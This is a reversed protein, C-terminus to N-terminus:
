KKPGQEIKDIADEAAQGVELRAAVNRWQEYWEASPVVVRGAIPYSNSRQEFPSDDRGGTLLWFTRGLAAVERLRPLAARADPGIDGLLRAASVAFRPSLVPLGTPAERLAPDTQVLEALATVAASNKDIAWLVTAVRLRVAASDHRLFKVLAPAAKAAKPGLEHLCNLANERGYGDHATLTEVLLPVADPGLKALCGLRFSQGQSHPEKEWAALENMVHRQIAPMADKAEPGINCLAEVISNPWRTKELLASLDSVADKPEPSIAVMAALAAAYDYYGTRAEKLRKAIVPRAAEAKPGIAGVIGIVRARYSPSHDALMEIFTPLAPAADPGFAKLAEAADDRDKDTEAKQLRQVWYALPKGEYKPEPKDAVLAPSGVFLVVAFALCALM